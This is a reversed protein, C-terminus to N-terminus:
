FEVGMRFALGFLGFNSNDETSFTPITAPPASRSSRTANGAGFWEQGVMGVQSFLRARGICRAFEVGLELEEIAVVGDQRAEQSGQLADGGFVTQKASGFLVRTRTSGYLSFPSECLPRRAELALVPGIGVFSSGSFLPRTASGSSAIAFADYNQTIDAYGVGGAFLLRWNCFTTEQFAELDAVQLQLKSTIAFAQPNNQIIAAGLPGASLVTLTQGAQTPLFLFDQETDQRFYWWRGRIGLGSDDRYGLWFLPAAEMSHSIDERRGPGTGQIFFSIAPNDSFFPQVVYLGAGGIVEGHQQCCNAM